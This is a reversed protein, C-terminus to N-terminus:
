QPGEVLSSLKREVAVRAAVAAVPTAAQLANNIFRRATIYKTGRELFVGHPGHRQGRKPIKMLGARGTIKGSKVRITLRIEKKVSGPAAAKAANAFARVAAGVAARSLKADANKIADLKALLDDAGTTNISYVTM